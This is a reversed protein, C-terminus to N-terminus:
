SQCPKAEKQPGDSPTLFRGSLGESAESDLESPPALLVPDLDQDEQPLHIAPSRRDETLVAQVPEALAVRSVLGGALYATAIWVLETIRKLRRSM